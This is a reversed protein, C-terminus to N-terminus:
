MAVKPNYYIIIGRDTFGPLVLLKLISRNELPIGWCSKLFFQGQSSRMFVSSQSLQPLYPSPVLPHRLIGQCGCIWWSGTSQLIGPLGLSSLVDTSVFYTIETGQINVECEAWILCHFSVCTAKCRMAFELELSSRSLNVLQNWLNPFTHHSEQPGVTDLHFSYCQLTLLIPLCCVHMDCSPVTMM